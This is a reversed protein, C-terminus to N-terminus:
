TEKWEITMSMTKWQKPKFRSEEVDKSETAVDTQNAEEEELSEKTQTIMAETETTQIQIEVLDIMTTTSAIGTTRNSRNGTITGTVRLGRRDEKREPSLGEKEKAESVGLRDIQIEKDVGQETKNLSLM